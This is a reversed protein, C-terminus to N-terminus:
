ELHPFLNHEHMAFHMSMLVLPVEVVITNMNLEDLLWVTYLGRSESHIRALTGIPLMSGSLKEPNTIRIQRTTKLIVAVTKLPSGPDLFRKM